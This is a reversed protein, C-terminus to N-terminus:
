DRSQTCSCFKPRQLVLGTRPAIIYAEVPIRLPRYNANGEAGIFINSVFHGPPLDRTPPHFSEWERPFSTQHQKALHTGNIDNQETAPQGRHTLLTTQPM